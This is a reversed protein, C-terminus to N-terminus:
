KADGIGKYVAQLALDVIGQDGIERLNEGDDKASMGIEMPASTLRGTLVTAVKDIIIDELAILLEDYSMTTGRFRFNLLSEPLLKKVAPM